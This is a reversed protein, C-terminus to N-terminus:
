RKSSYRSTCKSEEKSERRAKLGTGQIGTIGNEILFLSLDSNIENITTKVDGM